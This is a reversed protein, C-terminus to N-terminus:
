QNQLYRELGSASDKGLIIDKSSGFVRHCVVMQLEIPLQSTILFFRKHRSEQSQNYRNYDEVIDIGGFKAHDTETIKRLKLYDDTYLVVLGFLDGTTSPYGGLEFRLERQLRVRDNESCRTILVKMELSDTNEFLSCGNLKEKSNWQKDSAIIYKLSEENDLTCIWRIPTYGSSDPINIDSQPNDLLVRLCELSGYLSAIGVPTAGFQSRVNIDCKPHKLLLKVILHNDVECAKHLLSWGVKCGNFGPHRWNLDLSDWHQIIIQIVDQDSSRDLLDYITSEVSM